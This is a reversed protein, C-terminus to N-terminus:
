EAVWNSTANTIVKKIKRNNRWERGIDRIVPVNNPSFIHNNYPAAFRELASNVGSYFQKEPDRSVDMLSAAKRAFDGRLISPSTTFKPFSRFLPIKIGLLRVYENRRHLHGNKAIDWNQDATHFSVQMVTPDAFHELMEEGVKTLAIWDDELHFVYDSKTASWLRKVAAGFGPAGPTFIETQPFHSKVCAVCAAEDEVDGFIPDVNVLINRINLNPFVSAAFSDLTQGLLDPRRGAVICLDLESSRM